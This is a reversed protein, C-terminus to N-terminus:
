AGKKAQLRKQLVEYRCYKAKQNKKDCIGQAAGKTDHISVVQYDKSWMVGGMWKTRKIVLYIM